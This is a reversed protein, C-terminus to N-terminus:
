RFTKKIKKILKWIGYACTMLMASLIMAPILLHYEMILNWIYMGVCMIIMLSLGKEIMKIKGPIVRNSTRMSTDRDVKVKNLDVDKKNINKNQQESKNYAQKDKNFKTNIQKEKKFLEFKNRSYDSSGNFNKYM